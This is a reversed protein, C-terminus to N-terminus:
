TVVFEGLWCFSFSANCAGGLSWLFDLNSDKCFLVCRKVYCTPHMGTRRKGSDCM